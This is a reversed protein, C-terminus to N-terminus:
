RAGGAELTLELGQIYSWDTGAAIETKISQFRAATRVPMDGEAPMTSFAEENVGDGLRARTDFTLTIGEIADTMPRCRKTRAVRGPVLEVFPITINPVMNAGSFTGVVDTTDVIMLLPDGGSFSPDDLSITMADLDPFIVALAELSTDGTFGEFIAAVNTAIDSWRDLTWNYAWIRGGPMSWMVLTNQPDVAAYMNKLDSRPYSAFFTRDVREVGIPKVDSGDCMMFGRDSLFFVLRGSHVVSGASVCGINSSIEDFQFWPEAGLYSMRVIRRRQLIVGYEGGALGMVAGGTLMPQFGSQDTGPTWGEANNFASWQVMSQDGDARGVVVFDRVVTVMSATPPSGGLPAQAGTILDVKEIVDGNVCIALDGFQAFRWRNDANLALSGLLSAWSGAAYEYLDTATGALLTATGDTAVFSAGGQFTEPLAETAATLTKVPRYGNPGAYVNRAVVLGDLLHPPKDPMWEGFTLVKRM